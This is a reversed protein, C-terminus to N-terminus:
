IIDGGGEPNTTNVTTTKNCKVHQTEVGYPNLLNPHPSAGVVSGIIEWGGQRPRISCKAFPNNTSIGEIM